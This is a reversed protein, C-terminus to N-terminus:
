ARPSGSALKYVEYAGAGIILWFTFGTIVVVLGDPDPDRNILKKSIFYGPGKVMLEFLLEYFIQVIFRGVVKFIGGIADDIM